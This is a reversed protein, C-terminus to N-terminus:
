YEEKDGDPIKSLVIDAIANYDTETIVYSDGKPGQEGTDGKDGKQGKEGQLGQPGQKGTDGKEGKDGKDGKEGQQGQIGTDGKLGQEGKPGQIGQIGQLGQEGKPGQPGEPGQPGNSLIAETTGKGDKVIIKAGDELQEVSASPSVGDAGKILKVEALTEKDINEEIKDDKFIVKVEM